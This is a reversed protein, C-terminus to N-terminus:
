GVKLHHKRLHLAIEREERTLNIQEYEKLYFGPDEGLVPDKGYNYIYEPLVIGVATVASGLAEQSERFIAYPYRYKANEIFLDHTRMLEDQGGGNLLILTKDWVAWERFLRFGDPNEEKSNYKAVNNNIEQVCHAAQIGAQIGMMYMNVLVYCRTDFKKKM